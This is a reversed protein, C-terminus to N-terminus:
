IVAMLCLAVLILSLFLNLFTIGAWGGLNLFRGGISCSGCSWDSSGSMQGWCGCAVCGAGSWGGALGNSPSRFPAPGCALCGASSPSSPPATGELVFGGARSLHLKEGGAM